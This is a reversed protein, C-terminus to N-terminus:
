IELSLAYRGSTFPSFDQSLSPIQHDQPHTFNTRGLFAKRALLVQPMESVGLSHQLQWDCAATERM